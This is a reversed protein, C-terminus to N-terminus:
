QVRTIEHGNERLMLIVSDPGALHAAGVAIFNTGPVDFIAEIDDIWNRNRNVLIREYSEESEGMGPSAALVGIGEVDGDAWEDLLLDLAEPALDLYALSEILSDLQEDFDGGSIASFQEDISEVYGFDMGQEYARRTLVSEVGALPNMGQQMMVHQFINLSAYWPMTTELAEPDYDITKLAAKVKATKEPGMMEFLNQGDELFGNESVLDQFHQMAEPTELDVEFYVKDSSTFAETIANNEWDLKNPLLHVTGFLYITTDDDSMKWLAPHGPGNTSKAKDVAENYEAIAAEYESQTADKKCGSLAILCGLLLSSATPKFINKM